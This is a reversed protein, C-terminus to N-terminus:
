KQYFVIHKEEIKYYSGSLNAQKKLSEEAIFSLIGERETYAYGTHSEWEEASPIVMYFICDGGGVETYFRTTKNGDWYIAYGSRGNNEFTMKKSKQLYNQEQKQAFFRKLVSWFIPINKM